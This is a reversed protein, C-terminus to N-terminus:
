AQEIISPFYKLMLSSIYAAGHWSPLATYLCVIAINLNIEAKKAEDM